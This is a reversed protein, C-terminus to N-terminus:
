LPKTGIQPIKHNIELSLYHLFLMSCVQNDLAEIAEKADREDEFIVFGFGRPRGTERDTCVIM